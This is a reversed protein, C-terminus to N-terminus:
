EGIYCFFPLAYTCNIDNWHGLQNLLAVACNEDNGYENDPQGSNWIHFSVNNGDSWKWSDRFLGIWIVGSGQIMNKIQDNETQNRVSALDKYYTRCYKQAEYWTKAYFYEDSLSWRWSNIDNYLGIWAEESSNVVTANMLSSLDQSNTITALDTYKEQCYGQAETWNKKLMVFHYQYPLGTQLSCTVSLIVLFVNLGM